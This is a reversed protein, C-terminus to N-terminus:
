HSVMLKRQRSFSEFSYIIIIIILMFTVTIGITIPTSPIM